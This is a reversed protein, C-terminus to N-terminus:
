ATNGKPVMFHSLLLAQTMPHKFEAQVAELPASESRSDFDEYGMGNQAPNLLYPQYHPNLASYFAESHRRWTQADEKSWRAIESETQELDAFLTLSEGDRKLLSSQM